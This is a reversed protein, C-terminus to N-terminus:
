YTALNLAPWRKYRWAQLTRFLSLLSHLSYYLLVIGLEIECTEHQHCAMGLRPARSLYLASIAQVVVKESGIGHTIMAQTAFRSTM